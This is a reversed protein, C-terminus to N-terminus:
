ITPRGPQLQVLRAPFPEGNNHAQALREIEHRLAQEVLMSLNRPGGSATLAIVTDKAADLVAKDVYASMQRKSKPVMKTGRPAPQDAPEGDGVDRPEAEVDEASIRSPIVPPLRRPRSALPDRDGLGRRPSSM